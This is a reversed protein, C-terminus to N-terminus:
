TEDATRTASSGAQDTGSGTSPASTSRSLAPLDAGRGEILAMKKVRSWGQVQKERAFAEQAEGHEEAYVLVVPRRKRTHNAAWLDDHNHQWVRAEPDLVTSGTYLSGDRCRVIYMWPMLSSDNVPERARHDLDSATRGRASM